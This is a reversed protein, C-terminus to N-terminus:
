LGADAGSPGADTGADLGADMPSGADPTTGGGNMLAGEEIWSKIDALEQTTLRRTGNLPDLPMASGVISPDGNLKLWLYSLDPQAPEVLKLETRQSSMQMLRAYVDGDKLNLDAMPADGGHCGGCNFALIRSV